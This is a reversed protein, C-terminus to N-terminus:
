NKARAVVVFRGNDVHYVCTSLTLLDDGYKARIGTKYRAKNKFQDIADNFDQKDEADIFQYYKFVKETKKYVRDYFAAVVEYEKTGEMTTFKIIKHEQWFSKDKYRTLKAFMTGKKMNHGHIIINDSRPNLSCDGDILLTGAASFKGNVNKYLYKEEDKPTHVVPYDIITDEIQLWGVVDPNKAHLKELEKLRDDELAVTPETEEPETEIPETDETVPEVEPELEETAIPATTEIPLETPETVEPETVKPLVVLAAVLLLALVVTLVVILIQWKNKKAM